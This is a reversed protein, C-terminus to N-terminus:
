LESLERHADRFWQLTRLPTCTSTNCSAALMFRHAFPRMRSYLNELYQRVEGFSQFKETEMASIGGTVIFRDSTLNMVDELQVDGLPPFAVGELGDVGLSDILKLNARQRGCAHIFFTSGHEHAIRSAKEYFSASFAEVYAPPHFATDLNDMSMMAPVGAEAIQRVLDLHADEHSQLLERVRPEDDAILYTANVAGALFHLAKLPSWLEGAVVLGDEGVRAQEEDYREPRFRWHRARLLEELAGLPDAAGDLTFVEQVLTSEAFVYRLRETLTGRRTVYTKTFVRDRGDAQVQERVEVGEWIEESLGGIWGHQQDSYVNRSFVDLGLHQIFDLQTRCHALEPPLLSHNLQHSFWQWYNPAYVFRDPRQRALVRLVQSKRTPTATQAEMSKSIVHHDIM